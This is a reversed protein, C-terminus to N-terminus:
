SPKQKIMKGQKFLFRPSEPIIVTLVFFLIAPIAGSGFMWRWGVSVNFATSNLNAIAANVCYVTTMGIAFALQNCGILTGRIKAPAVESIYLPVITSAMGIAIGSLIRGTILIAVTGAFALTLSSITFLAGAIFMVWKRGIQDSLFGAILCGAMAGFALVGSVFGIEATSMSFHVSFFNLAGSIVGQDYGFLSGGIAAIITVVIIYTLSAKKQQNFPVKASSNSENM